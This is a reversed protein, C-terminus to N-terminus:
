RGSRVGSGRAALRERLIRVVETRARGMRNRFTRFARARQPFFARPVGFDHGHTWARGDHLAPEGHRRYYDHLHGLVCVIVLPRTLFRTDFSGLDALCREHFYAARSRLPRAHDPSAYRAALHLVHCKRLDHAPWTETPIDVKHLVDRYPIEHELMWAAYHLLSERAYHFCYDTEGLELKADLYGGLAQLFVLYSWRQEPEDLRHADIDDAPHVCRQVLEEAKELYSRRGSLAYADLLTAISNGGGRGPGHYALDVTKSALGTPAADLLGLPTLAGDDMALVWDALEIVTAASDPDGTMYHHLLLGSAYDHENSPGGGYGAGQANRVSYTRHTATAAPKYHDTHWFMGGSYAPKDERTHYVDIDVTHRAAADMLRWWRIDGTRLAHVAAGFVFDYQNNYHSVFPARGDQGVAEHDAYLEGFHRWGFEDVLERRAFFSDPGDIVRALYEAFGTQQDVSAVFGRVARSSEIAGPDVWAHVPSLLAPLADPEGPLGFDFAVDHRKQEGGQLETAEPQERPFLGVHVNAGDWRLAKPFNQWFDRVSVALWGEEGRAVVSPQARLGRAVIQERGGEEARIQYGRFAVSLRGNAAVHNPSDWREGGSSDQYLTWPCPTTGTLGEECGSSWEVHTAAIEPRVRISLDRIQWSGPDGLDWLGGAHRAARPNRVMLQCLVGSLGAAFSWRGRFELPCNARGAFRGVVAVDARVPGAREVVIDTVAAHREVGDSGVLRLGIGDDGLLSRGRVSASALLSAGGTRLVWERTGSRITLAGHGHELMLEPLSLAAADEAATAAVLHVVSDPAGTRAPAVFDVLLWKLTRDPWRALVTGQWPLRRGAPDVVALDTTAYVCGRPLPVGLRGHVRGDSVGPAQSLHIPVRVDGM